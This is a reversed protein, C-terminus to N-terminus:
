TLKLKSIKRFDASFAYNRFSDIQRIKKSGTFEVPLKETVFIFDFETQVPFIKKGASTPLFVVSESESSYNLMRQVNLYISQELM